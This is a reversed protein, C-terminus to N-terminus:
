KQWLSSRITIGVYAVISRYLKVHEALLQDEGAIVIFLAIGRTQQQPAALGAVHLAIENSKERKNKFSSSLIAPRNL